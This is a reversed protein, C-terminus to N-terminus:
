ERMGEFVSPRIGAFLCLAFYPVWRGGEYTEVFEMLARAQAASFTEIIDRSQRIRFHPVRLVPNEAIWGRMFIYKFFTSLVGRRNNHTKMEPQGLELYAVLASAPIEAVLKGPFYAVLRKMEWRIRDFQPRCIQDQEFEHKRAAVYDAVADALQKQKEPERYNALGFDVYFTMPRTNGQLRHFVAESERVQEATLSTVVSRLGSATQLSKIELSAKEAAAEERTKFNRRFRVGHLRGDVRWTTVGNRNIFPKLAFIHYDM